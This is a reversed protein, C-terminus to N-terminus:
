PTIVPNLDIERVISNKKESSKVPKKIHRERERKVGIEKGFKKTAEALSMKEEAKLYKITKSSKIIKNIMISLISM